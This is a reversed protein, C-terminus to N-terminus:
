YFIYLNSFTGQNNTGPARRVFVEDFPKLHFTYDATSLKLERTLEFKYVEATKDSVKAAEEYSLRRSVEIGSIDAAERFGGAKFILDGLTMDDSYEFTKPTLVEGTISITQAERLDRISRIQIEDEKQLELNYSGDLVQKPDFSINNLTNDANRRSILARNMFADEKLGDAKKILDSLKMGPTLEYNGPHFVAGTIAVRNSFRTLISDVKVFDGNQLAFSAFDPATVNRVERERDNNRTITISRSYAKADFGGAFKLLDTLKENEKIEFFGKRKVEGAVEVRTKYNPVFLIDQERLQVNATPDANILFDYVDISKITAGDRILRIERFSGNENPGGSLYLANFATATAPLTYTGPANIEGIVSIKISRGGGLTVEAWTNPFQGAMGNYIEMLRSKILSKGAEFSVGRLNVPGVDPINITGSKDITLQYKQQSAGWVNITLQDGIGLTYNAPIPINVDPEFTLKDSNFLQYGFIKKTKESVAIAKKTSLEKAAMTEAGTGLTAGPKTGGTQLQQIRTTLQDIQTQSAGQAKAMAIAQDQTLGRTQM